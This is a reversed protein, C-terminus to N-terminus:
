AAQGRLSVTTVTRDSSAASRLSHGNGSGPRRSRHDRGSSWSDSETVTVGVDSDSLPRLGVSQMLPGAQGRSETLTEALIIIIELM